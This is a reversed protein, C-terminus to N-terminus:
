RWCTPRLLKQGKQIKCKERGIKPAQSREHIVGDRCYHFRWRPACGLSKRFMNEDTEREEALAKHVENRWYKTGGHGYHLGVGFWGFALEM